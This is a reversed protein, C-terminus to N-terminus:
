TRLILHLFIQLWRPNGKASQFFFFDAPLLKNEGYKAVNGTEIAANLINPDFFMIIASPEFLNWHFGGQGLAFLSISYKLNGLLYNYPKQKATYIHLLVGRQSRMGEKM